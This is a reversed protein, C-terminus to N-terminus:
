KMVPLFTRNRRYFIRFDKAITNAASWKSIELKIKVANNIGLSSIDKRWSVATNETVTETHILGTASYVTITFNVPYENLLSDGVVKLSTLARGAPDFNVTM